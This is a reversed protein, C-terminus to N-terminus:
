LSKTNHMRFTRLIVILLGLFIACTVIFSPWIYGSNYIMSGVFTSGYLIVGDITAAIFRVVYALLIAVTAYVYSHWTVNYDDHTILRRFVGIIAVTGFGIFYDLPYAAFAGNNGDIACTILGFIIAGSIFGKFWGQRLAIIFLPLMAFNISGGEIPAIEIKCFQDLIIALACLIGMEAIDRVSFKFVDRSVLSEAFTLEKTESYSAIEEDEAEESDITEDEVEEAEIIEKEDM